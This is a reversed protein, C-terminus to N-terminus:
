ATKKRQIFCNEVGAVTFIEATGSLLSTKDLFLHLTRDVLMPVIDSPKEVKKKLLLAHAHHILESRADMPNKYLVTTLQKNIEPYGVFDTMAGIVFAYVHDVEIDPNPYYEKRHTFINHGDIPAKGIATGHFKSFCFIGAFALPREVEKYLTKYFDNLSTKGDVEVRHSPKADKPILFMGGSVFDRGSITKNYEPSNRDTSNAYCVGGVLVSEGISSLERPTALEFGMGFDAASFRTSTMEEPLRAAIVDAVTGIHGLMAPGYGTKQISIPM